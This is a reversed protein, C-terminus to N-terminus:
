PVRTFESERQQDQAIQLDTQHQKESATLSLQTQQFTIQQTLYLTGTAVIIPIALVAFFQIWDWLTRHAFGTWNSYTKKGNKRVQDVRKQDKPSLPPLWIGNETGM